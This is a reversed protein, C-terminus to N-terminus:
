RIIEIFFVSRYRYTEQLNNGPIVFRCVNLLSPGSRPYRYRYCLKNWIIVPWYRYRYTNACFLDLLIVYQYTLMESRPTTTPPDQWSNTWTATFKASKDRANTPWKHITMDSRLLSDHFNIPILPFLCCNIAKLPFPKWWKSVKALHFRFDVSFGARGVCSLSFALKAIGHAQCLACFTDARFCIGWGPNPGSFVTSVSISTFHIGWFYNKAKTKTTINIPVSSREGEHGCLYTVGFKVNANAKTFWFTTWESIM